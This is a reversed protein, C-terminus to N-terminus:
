VYYDEKGREHTLHGNFIALTRAYTQWAPHCATKGAAEDYRERVRRWLIVAEECMWWGLRCQTHKQPTNM